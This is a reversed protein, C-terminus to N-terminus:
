KAHCEFYDESIRRNPYRDSFATSSEEITLRNRASSGVREGDMDINKEVWMDDGDDDDVVRVGDTKAESERKKKKHHRRNGDEDRDKHRKKSHRDPDKHEKRKSKHKRSEVPDVEM